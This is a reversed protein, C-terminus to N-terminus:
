PLGPPWLPWSSWGLHNAKFFIHKEFSDFYGSFNLHWAQSSRVSSSYCPLHFISCYDPLGSVAFFTCWSYPCLFFVYLHPVVQLEQIFPELPEWPCIDLLPTGFSLFLWASRLGLMLNWIEYSSQEIKMIIHCSSMNTCNEYNLCFSLNDGCPAQEQMWFLSPPAAYVDLAWSKCSIAAIKKLVWKSVLAKEQESPGGKHKEVASRQQGQREKWVIRSLLIQHIIWHCPLCHDSFPIILFLHYHFGRCVFIM